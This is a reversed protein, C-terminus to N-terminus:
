FCAGGPKLLDWVKQLFRARGEAPLYCYVKFALIYDFKLNAHINTLDNDVVHYNVDLSLNAAFRRAINILQKSVDIGTVIHGAKALFNSIRGAGCGIDLINMLTQPITELLWRESPLIVENM